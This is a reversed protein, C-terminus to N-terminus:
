IYNQHKKIILNIVRVEKLKSRNLNKNKSDVYKEIVMKLNLQILRSGTIYSNGHKRKVLEQM